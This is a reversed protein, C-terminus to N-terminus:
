IYQQVIDQLLTNINGITIDNDINFILNIKIGSWLSQDHFQFYGLLFQSKLKCEDLMEGYRELLDKDVQYLNSKSNQFITASRDDLRYSM